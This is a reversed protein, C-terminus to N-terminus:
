YRRYYMEDLGFSLSTQASDTRKTVPMDRVATLTMSSICKTTTPQPFIDGISQTANLPPYHVPTLQAAATPISTLLSLALGFILSPQIHMKTHPQNTRIIPKTTLQQDLRTALKTNHEQHNFTLRHFHYFNYFFHSWISASDKYHARPHTCVPPLSSFMTQMKGQSIAASQTLSLLHRAKIFLISTPLSFLVTLFVLPNFSLPVLGELFFLTRYNLTSNSFM